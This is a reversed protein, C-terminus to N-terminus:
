SARREGKWHEIAREYAAILRPRVADLSYVADYHRRAALKMRDLMEPSGIMRWMRDNLEAVNGPPVTWGVRGDVVVENLPPYDSGIVACYRAMAEVLVTGITEARTPLVLVDHSWMLRLCETRPMLGEHFVIRPHERMRRALSPEVDHSVVSLCVRDTRRAIDDFAAVIEPLGKRVPEKGIFLFRTVGDRTPPLGPATEEVRYFPPVVEVLDAIAPCGERLIEACARTWVIIRDAWRGVLAYYAVVDEYRGRGIYRYYWEPSLGASSFVVPLRRRVARVDWPLLLHAHFVDAGAPLRSAAGGSRQSAHFLPRRAPGPLWGRGLHWAAKRATEAVARDGQLVSYALGGPQAGESLSLLDKLFSVDGSTHTLERATVNLAVRLVRRRRM